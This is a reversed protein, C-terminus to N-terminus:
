AAALNAPVVVPAGTDFSRYRGLLLFSAAVMVLAGGTLVLARDYSGDTVFARAYLLPGLGAGLSFGVYLIAYSVTYSRLGFYRVLMFAMLDYEVGLAFGILVIAAAATAPDVADGALLWCSIAPMALLAFAVAPAWIRDILWGGAVRGALASLGILSTLKIVTAADMGESTLIREMNPGIGGLSLSVLFFGVGMLWFRWDGLTAALGMGAPEVAAAGASAAPTEEHFLLYAAPLAILLPLLGLGVYAGRWGVAAIMAASLGKSLFGFLGTGMMSVGLALGRERDFWGNVARTFTIPLTGAGVIAVISFTVYYQTLSGPNLGLAMFALSFLVISTLAIRRVGYRRALVGALPGSGMVMFTTLTLAFMIQDMRWGFERSLAPAFVGMTYWPMPSLGLGIGLMSALVLKWGRGRFESRATM